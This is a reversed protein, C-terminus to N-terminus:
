DLNEILGDLIDSLSKFSKPQYTNQTLSSSLLEDLTDFSPVGYKTIFSDMLDDLPVELGDSPTEFSQALDQLTMPDLPIFKKISGTPISSIRKSHNGIIRQLFCSENSLELSDSLSFSGLQKRQKM